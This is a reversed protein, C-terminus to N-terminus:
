SRTDTDRVVDGALHHQRFTMAFVLRKERRVLPEALVRRQRLDVDLAIVREPEDGLVGVDHLDLLLGRDEGAAARCLGARVVRDQLVLGTVREGHREGAPAQPDQLGHRVQVRGLVRHDPIDRGLPEPRGGQLLPLVADPFQGPLRDRCPQMRARVVQVDDPVEGEEVRQVHDHGQEPNGSLVLRAHHGQGLFEETRGVGLCLTGVDRREARLGRGLLPRGRDPVEVGKEVGEDLGPAGLRAVVEGRDDGVRAAGVTLQVGLLDRIAPEDGDGGGPM